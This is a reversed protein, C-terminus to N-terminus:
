VLVEYGMRRVILSESTRWRGVMEQVEASLRLEALSVRELLKKALRVRLCKELHGTVSDLELRGALREAVTIADEDRVEKVAKEAVDFELVLSPDEIRQRLLDSLKSVFTHLIDVSGSNTNPNYKPSPLLLVDLELGSPFLRPADPDTESREALGRIDDIIDRLIVDFLRYEEETEADSLGESGHRYERLSWLGDVVPKISVIFRKQNTDYKMPRRAMEGLRMRYEEAMVSLTIGNEVHSDPLALLRSLFMHLTQLPETKNALRVMEDWHEGSDTQKYTPDKANLTRTIYEHAAHHHTTALAWARHQERIFSAPLYGACKRVIDDCIDPSFPGFDPINIDAHNRSLNLRSLFIDMWHTHQATSNNVLPILIDKAYQVQRNPPITDIAKGVLLSLTPRDEDSSVNPLNTAWTDPDSIPNSESPGAAIDALLSLFQIIKDVGSDSVHGFLHLTAKVVAARIDIHHTSDILQRFIDLTTDTSLFDADGLIQALLKVTTVKVYSQGQESDPPKQGCRQQEVLRGCVSGAFRQIFAAAADPRLQRCLTPLKMHRHYSSESPYHEIVRCIIDVAFEPTDSMVLCRILRFATRMLPGFEPNTKELKQLSDLYSVTVDRLLLAPINKISFELASLSRNLGERGGSTRASKELEGALRMAPVRHFDSSPFTTSLIRRPTYEAVVSDLYLLASIIIGERAGPQMRRLLERNSPSRWTRPWLWHVDRLADLGRDSTPISALKIRSGGTLRLYLLNKPLSDDDCPPKKDAPVSSAPDWEIIESTREPVQPLRPPRIVRAAAYLRLPEAVESLMLTQLVPFYGGYEERRSAYKEWLQILAKSKLKKSPFLSLHRRIVWSMDDIYGDVIDDDRPVATLVVEPTAELVDLVRNTIFPAHDKHRLAFGVWTQHPLLDQVALGRPFGDAVEQLAPTRNRRHNQFVTDLQCALADLFRLVSAPPAQDPLHWYSLPQPQSEHNFIWRDEELAVREWAVLEPILPMLLTDILESETGLGARRFRKIARVRNAVLQSWFEPLSNFPCYSEATPERQSLVLIERLAGLSENISDVASRLESISSPQRSSPMETCSPVQANLISDMLETFVVTDRLFRKSWRVALGWLDVSYSANAVDAAAM